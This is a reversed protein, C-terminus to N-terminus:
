KRAVIFRNPPSAPLDCAELIRFGADTIARELAEITMVTVKPAIGLVRMLPLILRWLAFGEGLCVTKTILLGSAPLTKHIKAIAAVPDDLLHLLSFAMIVDPPEVAALSDPLDAQLFRPSQGTQGSLKAQAIEIMRGSIDSGVYSVVLPALKLATTGTGCGLELVKHSPQLYARCRELTKAYADLDKVPKAAYRDANKDWFHATTTM